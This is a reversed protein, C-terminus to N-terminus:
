DPVNCLIQKAKLITSQYAISDKKLEAFIEAMTLEKGVLSYLVSDLRFIMNDPLTTKFKEIIQPSLLCDQDIEVRLPTFTALADMNHFRLILKSDIYRNLNLLWSLQSSYHRNLFLYSEAFFLTTNVDLNYDRATNYVFTNIGSIFRDIPERLIIDITEINKIQENFRIPYNNDRAHYFLSSSGNKFIPYIDATPMQIVECKNPFLIDLM